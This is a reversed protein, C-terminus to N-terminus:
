RRMKWIFAHTADSMDVDDGLYPRFESSDLKANLNVRFFDMTLITKSSPPEDLLSDDQHQKQYEVRYPFRDSRGLLVFVRDPFNAPIQEEQIEGQANLIGKKHPLLAALRKPKWIGRIAWVPTQQYTIEVPTDFEFNNSLSGLLRPLGGLAIADLNREAAKTRRLAKRVENLDVQKVSKSEDRNELVWLFRGDNIHHIGTSQEETRIRLQFRFRLGDGDFKQRYQGSGILQQGFLETQHRIQATLNAKSMLQVSQRILDGGSPLSSAGVMNSDSNAVESPGVTQDVVDEAAATQDVVAVNDQAHTVPQFALHFAWM